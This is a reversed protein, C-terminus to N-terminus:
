AAKRASSKRATPFRYASGSATRKASVTRRTTGSKATVSTRGTKKAKVTIGTSKKAKAKVGKGSKKAKKITTKGTTGTSRYQVNWWTKCAQMFAAQSGCKNNLTTPTCVGNCLCWEIFCQWTNYQVSRTTAASWKASFNPFYIWQGNFKQRNCTGAKYLSEWVKNVTVGHRRALNEVVQNYSAGRNVASKFGTAFPSKFTSPMISHEQIAESSDPECDAVM